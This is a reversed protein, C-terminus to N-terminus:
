VIKWEEDTYKQIDSVKRPLKYKDCWKRITNDTVKYMDAIHTFPTSRILKKLNDRSIVNYLKETNYKKYCIECMTSTSNMLNTKCCPCLIKITKNNRKIKANERRYKHSCSICLGSKNNRSIKAGCEKCILKNKIVRKSNYVGFNDTMSHCNPCLIQLNSLENNDHDGDIHHLQLKVPKGMWESINCLECKNEKYGLEILKNRLKHSQVKTNKHLKSEIDYESCLSKKAMQQKYVKRNEEFKSTDLKYENIIRKLTNTSSSSNIGAARLIDTYANSSDLLSQLQEPSFNYLKSAM